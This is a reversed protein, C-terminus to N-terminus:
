MLASSIPPNTPLMTAPYRDSLATARCPRRLWPFGRWPRSGDMIAPINTDM